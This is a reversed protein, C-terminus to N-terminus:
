QQQLTQGIVKEKPVIFVEGPTCNGQVCRVVYEDRLFKGSRGEIIDKYDESHIKTVAKGDVTLIPDAYQLRGIPGAEITVVSAQRSPALSQKLHDLIGGDHNGPDVLVKSGVPAIGGEFTLNKVPVVSNDRLLVVRLLTAAFCLYVVGLVALAVGVWRVAATSLMRTLVGTSVRVKKGGPGAAM